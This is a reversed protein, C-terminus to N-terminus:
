TIRDNGFNGKLTGITARNLYIRITRPLGTIRFGKELGRQAGTLLYATM